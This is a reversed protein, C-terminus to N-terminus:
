KRNKNKSATDRFVKVFTTALVLLPFIWVLLPTQFNFKEDLKRGGWVAIFLMVGLQTGFGIYELLLNSVTRKDDDGRKM